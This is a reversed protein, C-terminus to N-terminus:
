KAHHVCSEVCTQLKERIRFVRIRLANLPLDLKEALHKRREIKAGKGGNYYGQLMERNGTTLKELCQRLCQVTTQLDDGEEQQTQIHSLAELAARERSSERIAEFRVMRAVGYLYAYIDRFEEGRGLRLVVRNITEDALEESYPCGRWEFFRVLGSRVDEYREGARDRDAELCILFRDFGEQTLSQNTKNPPSDAVDKSEATIDIM